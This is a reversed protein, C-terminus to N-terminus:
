LATTASVPSIARLSIAVRLGIQYQKVHIQGIHVPHIHEPLNAGIRQQRHDDEASRRLIAALNDREFFARIIVHDLRKRWLFQNRANMRQQAANDLPRRRCFCAQVDAMEFQIHRPPLDGYAASFEMQRRDLITDQDRQHPLAPCTM